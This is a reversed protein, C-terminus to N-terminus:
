TSSAQGAAVRTVLKKAVSRSFRSFGGVSRHELAQGDVVGEVPHPRHGTLGARHGGALGHEVLDESGWPPM